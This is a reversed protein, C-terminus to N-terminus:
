KRMCKSMQEVDTEAKEKWIRGKMLTRHATSMVLYIFPPSYAGILDMEARGDWKGFIWTYEKVQVDELAAARMHEALKEGAHIDVGLDSAFTDRKRTLWRWPSSM